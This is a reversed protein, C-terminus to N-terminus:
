ISDMCWSDISILFFDLQYLSDQFNRFGMHNLDMHLHHSPKTKCTSPKGKMEALSLLNLVGKTPSSLNNRGLCNTKLDPHFRAPIRLHIKRAPIQFFLLVPKRPSQVMWRGRNKDINRLFEKWYM